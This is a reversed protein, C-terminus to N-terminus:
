EVVTFTATLLDARRSSRGVLVTHPMREVVWRASATEYYALDAVNVPVSIRKTEGPALAVKEFGRLLKLPRDIKSNTFGVYLQAIEEGARSGTNTVDVSATVVGSAPSEKTDLSLNAYAFTTYSRGHGFAYRPESGRKEVLTYGHYYGYEVTLSRNDFAPLQSPDRPVTFPLKGSPNVDGLLIRALASGGQEGPYFAMVIAPVKQEWEEVTIAAGGILVVITRPNEAAVAQVLARDSPELALDERDGGHERQDPNEPTYEGEDSHTFGVVVVVADAAKAVARAKALDAGDEHVVGEPGLAQRLGGVVTVVASLPPYVRSSGHDGLNAADALRGVVAVSRLAARELPLLGDNKLLVIGKEAMERTLAVHEAARVLAPPYSMPDPRTAYDIKRRLLRLVAEDVVAVPVEGSEVAAQLTRGFRRVIPMELDLGALAGKKGDYVGNFFDSMVFGRYGWEGKLIEHLLHRSEGCYDGNVKNYASMVSAVDARVLREFHPLYVERLTREDVRTDVKTRTEEISNLAFHKACGMVNHRQVAEMAPLALEGSLYPDEGLTEQARGWSPHRLVNVCLGAWFNAHQARSEKGAVDGFREQLERDWSAARLMASPFCTSHKMVVGRPGDTFAVPPIALRRDAGGPIAADNYKWRDLTVIKLLDLLTSDGSMQLVKQQLSMEGLLRRAYGDIEAASLARGKPIDTFKFVDAGAERVFPGSVSRKRNGFWLFLAVGVVIVLVLSVLVVLLRRRIRM